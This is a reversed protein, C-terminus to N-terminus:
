PHSQANQRLSLEPFIALLEGECEELLNALKGKKDFVGGYLRYVRENDAMAKKLANQLVTPNDIVEGQYSMYQLQMWLANAVDIRANQLRKNFFYGKNVPHFSSFVYDQNEQSSIFLARKSFYDELKVLLRERTKELRWAAATADSELNTKISTALTTSLNLFLQLFASKSFGLQVACKAMLFLSAMLASLTKSGIILDQSKSLFQLYAPSAEQKGLLGRTQKAIKYNLLQKILIDKLYQLKKVSVANISTLTERDALYIKEMVSQSIDTIKFKKTIAFDLITQLKGHILKLQNALDSHAFQGHALKEQMQKFRTLSSQATGRKEQNKQLSVRCVIVPHFPKRKSDFFCSM